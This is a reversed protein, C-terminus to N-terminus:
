RLLTSVIELHNPKIAAARVCRIRKDAGAFVHVPLGAGADLRLSKLWGPLAEPDTLHASRPFAPRAAFFRALTEKEEDVSVFAIEAGLQKKWSAIMPMEEICPKCWTAWINVWVPGKLRTADLGNIAPLTLPGVNQVDCFAAPTEKDSKKAKVAVVRGPPPPSPATGTESKCAVIVAIAAALKVVTSLRDM